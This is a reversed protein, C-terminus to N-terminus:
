NKRNAYQAALNIVNDFAELIENKNTANPFEATIHVNQELIENQNNPVTVASFGGNVMASLANIDIAKAIDRVIGIADLLNPTDQANLVLEKQHLLALRGESTGWSGTYGGTDYSGAIQLAKQYYYDYGAGSKSDNFAKLAISIASDSYGQSRASPQWGSSTQPISGNHVGKVIAMAENALATANAGNGPNGGGSGPGGSGPVSSNSVSALTAKMQLAMQIVQQMSSILQQNQAITSSIM